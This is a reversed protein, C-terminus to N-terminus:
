RTVGDSPYRPYDVDSKSAHIMRVREDEGLYSAFTEQGVEPYAFSWHVTHVDDINELFYKNMQSEDYWIAHLGRSADDDIRKDLTDVMKKVANIEGGWFCGQHYIAKSGLQAPLDGVCATSEPRREFTEWRPNTANGPHHVGTLSKGPSIVEDLTIDTLAYLDADIYFLYDYENLLGHQVAANVFKYRHLTAEPWVCEPVKAHIVDPCAFTPHDRDSFVFIRKECDNLFHDDVAHKWRQFFEAYKSTGIFVVAVKKRM